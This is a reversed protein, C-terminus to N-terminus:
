RGGRREAIAPPVFRGGEHVARVADAVQARLADKLLYGRAGAKLPREIDAKRDYTTLVIIRAEPFEATIALTAEAGGMVPMSLATLTIDPRHARFLEVAESGDRAEAVLELDKYFMLLATLRDRFIPHDDVIM